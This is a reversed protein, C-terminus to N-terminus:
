NRGDEQDTLPLSVFFTSGKGLSSQVWVTGGHGEVISKVNALGLGTGGAARTLSNDVRFFKEFVLHLQDEALGLGEDEVSLVVRAEQTEIAIRISGGEPSYKVANSLLNTVAQSMLVPDLKLLPVQDFEFSFEHIESREQFGPLVEQVLAELSNLSLNFAFKGAELRSLALIEEIIHQLRESEDLCIKLYRHQRELPFERFLMLEQFARITTIPTKLEHSVMSLFESKMREVERRETEDHLVVVYGRSSILPSATLQYARRAVEVEETLQQQGQLREMALTPLLNQVMDGEGLFNIAARNMKDVRGKEDLVLVGDVMSSLIAELKQKELDIQALQKKQNEYLNANALALAAQDSVSALFDIQEPPFPEETGRRIMLVGILEGRHKLPTALSSTIKEQRNVLGQFRGADAKGDLLLPEGTQAVWGAISEGIRLRTSQVIQPELGRSAAIQLYDGDVLM